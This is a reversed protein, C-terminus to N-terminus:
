ECVWQGNLKECFDPPGRQEWIEVFGMAEAVELFRPHATFGSDRNSIGNLILIETNGFVQASLGDKFVLEFYRDLFGYSLYWGELRQELGFALDEPASAVIEPIRRDLYAQGTEPNSAGTHLNRVWHYPLGREQLGAEQYSIALEYHQEQRHFIALMAKSFDSGLEDALELVALAESKRGSAYLSNFLNFQANPSLPDREVAREHLLLAERVYGAFQLDWALIEMAMENNPEERLARELGEIERSHWNIASEATGQFVQALLLDPDIELARTAANLVRPQATDTDLSNGWQAWNV